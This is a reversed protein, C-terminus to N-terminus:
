EKGREFAKRLMPEIAQLEQANSVPFLNDKKAMNRNWPQVPMVVLGRPRHEMWPLFHAPTDDVIVKGYVLSKDQTVTVDAEPLHEAIWAAKESWANKAEKSGRTMIMIRFGIAQLLRVIAFGFPIPKLNRYWGAQGRILFEVQRIAQPSMTEMDKGLVRALDADLQERFQCLTGDMDVLAVDDQNM